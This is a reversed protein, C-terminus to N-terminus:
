FGLERSREDGGSYHIKVEVSFGKDLAKVYRRLTNLTYSDYGRKEIRSVQSQTIGLRKALEAQTLGAAERAEALQLWLEKKSAEEEYLQRGEETQVLSDSWRQYSAKGEAIYDRNRQDAM